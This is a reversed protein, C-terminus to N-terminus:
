SSVAADEKKKELASAGLFFFRQVTIEMRLHVWGHMNFESHDTWLAMSSATYTGHSEQPEDQVRPPFIGRAAELQGKYFILLAIHLFSQLSSVFLLWIQESNRVREMNAAIHEISSM